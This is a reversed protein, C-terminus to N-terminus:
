KGIKKLILEEVEAISLNTTDIVFSGQPIVLPAFARTSDQEDRAIMDQLVQELSVDQKAKLELYRRKARENVDATLYFKYDAEPLVYSGMDRGDFISNTTNAINRQIAVMKLRVYKNKSVTSANMSIEPTRILGSIDKGNLIVKQEGDVIKLDLNINDLESEVLKDDTVDIKKSLMHFAVARYMAGTDVYVYGIKKAISKALTTKGSGGPGDITINIFNAM